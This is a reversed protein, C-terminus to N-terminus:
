LQVNVVETISTGGVITEVLGDAEAVLTATFLGTVAVNLSAIVDLEIELEVNLRTPGSPKTTGEVTEYAFSM